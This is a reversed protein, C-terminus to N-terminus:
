VIADSPMEYKGGAPHTGYELVMAIMESLLNYTLAQLLKAKVPVDSAKEGRWKKAIATAWMLAVSYACPIVSELYM